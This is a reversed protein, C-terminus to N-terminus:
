RYKREWFLGANPHGYLSRLLRCVPRRGTRRHAEVMAPTWQWEPLQVYTEVEDQEIDDEYMDSQTYAAPADSQQGANGPLMAVADLLKSAAGYSAGSGAEPFTAALGFEDQVNNGGFVVRGKWKRNVHGEPLESGKLVCIDFLRGLHVKKGTAKARRIVEDLFVVDKASEPEQWTRKDRLRKWEAGVAAKADDNKMWEKRAIDQAVVMTPTRAGARSPDGTPHKSKKNIGLRRLFEKNQQRADIGADNEVHGYDYQEAESYADSDDFCDVADDEDPEMTEAESVQHAATALEKCLPFKNWADMVRKESFAMNHFEVMVKVKYQTLTCVGYRDTQRREEGDSVGNAPGALFSQLQPQPEVPGPVFRLPRRRRARTGVAKKTPMHSVDGDLVPHNCRDWSCFRDPGFVELDRTNASSRLRRKCTCCRATSMPVDADTESDVMIPPGDSDADDDSPDGERAERLEIIHGNADFRESKTLAYAAKADKKPIQNMLIEKLDDDKRVFGIGNKSRSLEALEIAPKRVNHWREYTKQREKESLLFAWVDPDVDPTRKSDKRVGVKQGYVWTCTKGSKPDIFFPPRAIQFWTEGTWSVPEGQFHYQRPMKLDRKDGCWTDWHEGLCRADPKTERWAELEEVGFTADPAAPDGVPIRTGGSTRLWETPSFLTTRPTNHRRIIFEGRRIWDDPEVGSDSVGTRAGARSSGDNRAATKEELNDFLQAFMDPHEGELFDPSDAPVIDGSPATAGGAGDADMTTTTTSEEAFIHVEDYANDDNNDAKKKLKTGVQKKRYKRPVYRNLMPAKSKWDGDKVPFQFDPLDKSDPTSGPVYVEKTTHVPLDRKGDWNEYAM